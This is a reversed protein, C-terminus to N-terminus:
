LTESYILLILLLGIGLPHNLYPSFINIILLSILALLLGIEKKTFLKKGIKFILILYIIVGALGFKLIMDLYGWEFAYTTIKGQVRPDDSLYTVQTGFGSGIIPHKIIALSLPKLQALRSSSAAEAQTARSKFLALLDQGETKPPLIVVLSVIALSIIIIILVKAFKKFFNLLTIRLKYNTIQLILIFYIILAVGLGVWYSRSFSLIITILCIVPLLYSIVKKVKGKDSTLQLNKTTLLLLFAFVSYIQSQIFIRYFNGNILTIEGIRTDRVWRYLTGMIEAYNHSFLYFLILTKLSILIVSALLINVIRDRAFGSSTSPHASPDRTKKEQKNIVSFVPLILLWYLWNNFDFFVNGFSNGRIIGWVFGWLIVVAFIYYIKGQPAFRCLTERLSIKRTKSLNKAVSLIFYFFWVGMVVVFLGERLSIGQYSFLYGFSGVFLEALLIYLGYELKKLSLILTILLILALCILNLVSIKWALFSLAEALILFLFTIKITKLNISSM